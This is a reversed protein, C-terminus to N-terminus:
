GQIRGSGANNRTRILHGPLISIKGGILAGPLVPEAGAGKSICGEATKSIRGSSGCDPQWSQHVDIERRGFIEAQRLAPADLKAGLNEVQEIM